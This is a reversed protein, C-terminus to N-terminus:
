KQAADWVESDSHGVLGEDHLTHVDHALDKLLLALGFPLNEDLKINM